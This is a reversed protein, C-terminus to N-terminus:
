TWECHVHNGSEFQALTAGLQRCRNVITTTSRGGYQDLDFARGAYHRSGTSHSGGAIESVRLAGEAGIQRLATLMRPDLSVRGGPAGGYNSRAAQLGNATDVINQRAHANDAVGSVHVTQLTINRNALIANAQETAGNSGTSVSVGNAWRAVHGQAYVVLNGDTQLELTANPNANTGTSWVAVNGPAIVVANGDSQMRLISGSRNTGSAWVPRNGPAYEVLNGDGQMTLAIGNATVLSQGSGLTEDPGLLYTGAAASAPSSILASGMVATAIIARLRKWSTM